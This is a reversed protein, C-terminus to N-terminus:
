QAMVGTLTVLIEETFVQKMARSQLAQLVNEFSKPSMAGM